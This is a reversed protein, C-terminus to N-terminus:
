SRIEDVIPKSESQRLKLHEESNLNAEKAKSEITYLKGIKKVIWEGQLNKSDMKLIEFFRRRAHNWCGAHLIRSKTKLLSDYSEYGDTQIIGVARDKSLM